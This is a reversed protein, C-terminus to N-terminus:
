IDATLIDKFYKEEFDEEVSAVKKYVDDIKTLYDTVSAPDVRNTNKLYAEVRSKYAKYAQYFDNSINTFDLQNWEENMKSKGLLYKLDNDM